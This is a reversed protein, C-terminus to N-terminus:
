KQGGGFFFDNKLGGFFGKQQPPPQSVKEVWTGHKHSPRDPWIDVITWSLVIKIELPAFMGFIPIKVRKLANKPNELHM